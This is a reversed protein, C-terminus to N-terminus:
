GNTTGGEAKENIRWELEKIEEKMADLVAAVTPPDFVLRVKLYVYEKVDEFLKQNGLADKGLYDVWKETKDSISFGGVPGVGLQELIAFASNIFITIEPDFQTYEEEIGLLKKISTLISLIDAM